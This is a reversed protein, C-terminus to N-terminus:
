GPDGPPATTTAPAVPQGPAFLYAPERAPVMGLEQAVRRVHEPSELASVQSTLEESRLTLADVEGQLQRVRFASEVVLAELSLVGFTGLVIVAVMALLYRGWTRRPGVVRLEPRRGREGPPRPASSPEPLRLANRRELPVAAM